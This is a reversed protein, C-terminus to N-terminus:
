IFKRELFFFLLKLYSMIDHDKIYYIPLYHGFTYVSGPCNLFDTNNCRWTIKGSTSKYNILNLGGNLNLNLDGFLCSLDDM